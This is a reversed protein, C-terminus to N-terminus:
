VCLKLIIFILVAGNVEGIDQLTANEACHGLMSILTKLKCMSSEIHALVSFIPSM